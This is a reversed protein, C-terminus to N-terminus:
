GGGVTAVGRRSRWSSMEASREAGGPNAGDVGISHPVVGTYAQSLELILFIASAVAFSGFGLAAVSAGNPGSLLRSATASL